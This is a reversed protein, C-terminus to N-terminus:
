EVTGCSEKGVQTQHLSRVLEDNKNNIIKFEYEFDQFGRLINNRTIPLM